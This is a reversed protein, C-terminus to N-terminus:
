RKRADRVGFVRVPADRDQRTGDGVLHGDNQGWALVIDGPGVALTHGRGVGLSPVHELTPVPVPNPLGSLTGPLGPALRHNGWAVVAGGQMCAVAHHWGVSIHQADRLAPLEIPHQVVDDSPAGLQGERTKGWGFVRGDALRVFVTNGGAFVTQVTDLPEGTATIAARRPRTESGEDEGVGLVASRGWGWLTGDALLAFSADITAAVAAVGDLRAVHQPEYSPETEGNGLQGAGNHGWAWVHGSIGLALAHGSGATIAIVREPIGTVLLPVHNREKVGYTSGIGLFGYQNSGWTRVQGDIGLSISFARAPLGGGVYGDGAAIEVVDELGRILRPTSVADDLGQAGSDSRGWGVVRGSALVVLSHEHSAAARAGHRVAAIPDHAAAAAAGGARRWLLTRDATAIGSGAARIVYTAGAQPTFTWLPSPATAHPQSLRTARNFSEVHFVELGGAHTSGMMEFTTATDSPAVWRFWTDHTADTGGDAPASTRATPIRAAGAAGLLVYADVVAAAPLESDGITAGPRMDGAGEALTSAKKRLADVTDALREAVVSAAVRGRPAMRERSFERAVRQRARGTWELAASMWRRAFEFRDSALVQRVAALRGDRPAEPESQDRTRWASLVDALSADAADLGLSRALGPLYGPDIAQLLIVAMERENPEAGRPNSGVVASPVALQDRVAQIDDQWKFALQTWDLVGTADALTTLPDHVYITRVRAEADSRDGGAAELALQWLWNRSNPQIEVEEFRVTRTPDLRASIALRVHEEADGYTALLRELDDALTDEGGHQRLWATVSGARLEALAESPHEHWAAALARADTLTTGGLTLVASDAPPAAPPPEAVPPAAPPPETVPPAPPPTATPPEDGPATAPRQKTAKKRTARRKPPAPREPESSDETSAHDDSREVESSSRTRAKTGRTPQAVHGSVHIAREGIATRVLIEGVLLTGAMLAEFAAEVHHSGPELQDPQLRVGDLTTRLSCAVPVTVDFGARFAKGAPLSALDLVAPLRWTGEEAPLGVIAGRVRLDNLAVRTRVDVKLAVGAHPEDSPGTAEVALGNIRVDPSAITLVPGTEAWLSAGAGEITLPRDIVCPGSYEGAELRVISRPAAASVLDQLRTM